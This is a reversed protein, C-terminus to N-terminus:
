GFQIASKHEISLRCAEFLTLWVLKEIWLGEEALTEQDLREFESDSIQGNDLRVGLAPAIHVLEDKLRYSSGLLGGPIRGQDKDDILVDDFDVPLYFGECDSHCLLHSEMLLTVEDLVSDESPDEGERTPTPTWDPDSILRAYVRRLHHLFSYPFSGAARFEMFPLRDPEDHQPLGNEALVQNVERLSERFWEAGEADDENLDALVGVSVALGM